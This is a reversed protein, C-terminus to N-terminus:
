ANDRRDEQAGTDDDAKEEKKTKTGSSAIAVGLEAIKEQERARQELVEEWDRGQGAVEEAMTSLGYDIAMKSAEVEKTPDVWGWGGGIWQCRCYESKLEYFRPVDFLGRLYAEEMVLEYVPQCFKEAFWGRWNLFFRRGELLAARASSYNTKSFDKFFIEYPMGLANGILRLVGELFANFTEGPRKPDVVNIGEGIGLYNVMGPELAQLRSGSGSETGTQSSYAAGMPDTKTVFVALCAAVRAAV